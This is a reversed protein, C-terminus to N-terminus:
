MAVGGGGESPGIERGQKPTKGCCMNSELM